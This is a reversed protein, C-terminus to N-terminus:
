SQRGAGPEWLVDNAGGDNAVRALVFFLDSLRNLYRLVHSNVADSGELQILASVCREARRCVCRALHLHAALETGGPLIFTNLPALDANAEDIWGELRLTYDEGLRTQAQGTGSRCLDSGVDFLDNQVAQLWVKMPEPVEGALAIGLASSVEDVTGYSEVRLHHKHVREGGALSTQGEDGSRTYIRNLHVM